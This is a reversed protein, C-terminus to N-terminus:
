TENGGKPALRKLLRNDDEYQALHAHIADLCAPLDRAIAADYIARHEGRTVHSFGFGEIQSVAYMRFTDFVSKYTRILLDSNCAGLLTSHFVWDQRSWRRLFPTVDEAQEMRAEIYDLNHHAANLAMEWEFDGQKLALEAAERELLLRLHAAQRFTDESHEVARFGHNKENEVFGEGALRLLAERLAATTCGFEAKLHHPKLRQGSKWRGWILGDRLSDYIDTPPKPGSSVDM